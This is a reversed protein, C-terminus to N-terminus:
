AENRKAKSRADRDAHGADILRGIVGSLGDDILWILGNLATVGLWMLVVFPWTLTVALVFFTDDHQITGWWEYVIFLYAVVVGITFYLVVDIVTIIAWVVTETM